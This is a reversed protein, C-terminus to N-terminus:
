APDQERFAKSVEQELHSAIRIRYDNFSVSTIDRPRPLDVTIEEIIRGPRSTMLFIRDSLTLAEDIHHTVFVITKSFQEWVEILFKQMMYRTQYDLAAFPEDMLIYDPDGALVRAISVRQKMGGSLQHPFKKAVQLLGVRRLVDESRVKRETKPVGRRKLSFEVNGKVTLWPFLGHEQFVMGIERRPETVKQDGVTVIGRDAKWLGSFIYLLTSKGCGSPGVLSVFEGPKTTFSIDQLVETVSGRDEDWSFFVNRCALGSRGPMAHVALTPQNMADRWTRAGALTITVKCGVM